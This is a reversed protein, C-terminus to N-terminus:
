AAAGSEKGAVQCQPLRSAQHALDVEVDADVGAGSMDHTSEILGHHGHIVAKGRRVQRTGQLVRTGIQQIM